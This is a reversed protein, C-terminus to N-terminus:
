RKVSSPWCCCCSRLPTIHSSLWVSCSCVAALMGVPRERHAGLGAHQRYRAQAILPQRPFAEAAGGSASAAQHPWRNSPVASHSRRGYHGCRPQPEVRIEGRIVEEVTPRAHGHMRGQLHTVEGLARCRAMGVHSSGRPGARCRRLWRCPPRACGVAFTGGPGRRAPRRRGAGPRSRRFAARM